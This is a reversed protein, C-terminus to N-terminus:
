SLVHYQAKVKPRLSWSGRVANGGGVYTGHSILNLSLLLQFIM